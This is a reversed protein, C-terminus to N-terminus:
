PRSQGPPAGGQGPPVGGGDPPTGPTDGPPNGPVQPPPNPVNVPPGSTPPPLPQVQTPLPPPQAQTPLAPPVNAPTPVTTPPATPNIRREPQETEQLARGAETETPAPTPKTTPETTPATTSPPVPAPPETPSAQPQVFLPRGAIANVEEGVRLEVWQDGLVVRVVGEDCAVYTWDATIVDVRFVTGRVSATSSPTRIEFADGTGLARSVSSLTRGALQTLRVRYTKENTLLENIDLSTNDLLEVTSGDYFRLQAADNLGLNIKDGARVALMQGAIVTVPNGTPVFPLSSRQAVAAQGQHVILTAQSGQDPQALAFAGILLLILAAAVATLARRHGLLAANLRQLFPPRDPVFRGNPPAVALLVPRLAQVSLGVYAAIQAADDDYQQQNPRRCLALRALQEPRIRWEQALDRWELGKRKGYAEIAYALLTPTASAQQAMRWMLEPTAKQEAQTM